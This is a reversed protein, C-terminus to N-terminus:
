DDAHRRRYERNKVRNGCVEMKCWTGSRNRSRDYFAWACEDNECIKLREWEGLLQARYAIGLLQALFDQVSRAPGLDLELRGGEGRKLRVGADLELRAEEGAGDSGGHLNAHLAARVAARLSRAAELDSEDVEVGASALGAGVLWDHLSQTSELHDIHEDFDLTNAFAQVAILPAPAPKGGEDALRSYDM